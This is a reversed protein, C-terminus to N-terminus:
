LKNEFFPLVHFFHVSNVYLGQQLVPDHWFQKYNVKVM